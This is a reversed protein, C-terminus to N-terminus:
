KANGYFLSPQHKHLSRLVEDPAMGGRQVALEIGAVVRPVDKAGWQKAFRALDTNTNSM